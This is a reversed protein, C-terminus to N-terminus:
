FGVGEDLGCAINMCQIAAGSAGKGLNDLRAAVIIQEDHGFVFIELKNTGNCATANMFGNDTVKELDFPQVSVFHADKYHESLVEHINKATMSKSFQSHWLPVSVLMGQFMDGVVPYFIPPAELGTIAKMEPLHKHSLGLAYPRPAHFKDEPTRNKEHADILMIGGGSYGTLSTCNLKASAPLLGSSVLPYIVSIFGAAHCGPVAIRKSSAISSRHKASLEPFGYAWGPATRHATSADLILTNAPAAAVSERAADDPLCLFVVDAEELLPKKAEFNERVEFDLQLLEIDNRERLRSELKLGTTGYQGDIFIKM